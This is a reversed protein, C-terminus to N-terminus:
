PVDWAMTGLHRSFDAFVEIHNEAIRFLWPQTNHPNAALIASQILRLPGSEPRIRWDEWPVFAPGTATAFVGRDVARYVGAGTVLVLTATGLQKLFRRRNIANPAPKTESSRMSKDM